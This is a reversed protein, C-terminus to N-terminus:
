PTHEGVARCLGLAFATSLVYGLGPFGLRCRLPKAAAPQAPWFSYDSPLLEYRARLPRIQGLNLHHPLSPAAM